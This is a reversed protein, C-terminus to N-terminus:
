RQPFAPKKLWHFEAIAIKLTPRKKWMSSIDTKYRNRIFKRLEPVRINKIFFDHDKLVMLLAVLDKKDKDWSYDEKLYHLSHLEREINLFEKHLDSSIYGDLGKPNPEFPFKIEPLFKKYLLRNKIADDPFYDYLLQLLCAVANDFTYGVEITNYYESSEDNRFLQMVKVKNKIQDELRIQIQLVEKLNSFLQSKGTEPHGTITKEIAKTLDYLHLELEEIDDKSPSNKGLLGRLKIIFQSDM